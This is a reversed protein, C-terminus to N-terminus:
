GGRRYMVTLVTRKMFHRPVLLHSLTQEEQFPCLSPEWSRCPLEYDDMVGTGPIQSRLDRRAEVHIGHVCAHICVNLVCSTFIFLDLVLVFGM